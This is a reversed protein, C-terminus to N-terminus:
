EEFLYVNVSESNGGGPHAQVGLERFHNEIDQAVKGSSAEWHVVDKKDIGREGLRRDLDKTIGM